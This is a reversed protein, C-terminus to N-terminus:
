GQRSTAATATMADVAEKLAKSDAQLEAKLRKKARTIAADVRAEVHAGAVILLGSSGEDLLEGLKKIDSRKMGRAVHGTVAGIVAGLAGGGLMGAGLAVGLAPFLTVVLGVTLGVPLGILAGHRTPEEVRKVIKVDGDRQRTVVVGDYTDIVDLDTYLRRVADYDAIADSERDYQNAFVFYSDLPM